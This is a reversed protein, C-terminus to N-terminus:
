LIYESTDYFRLTTVTRLQLLYYDHPPHKILTYQDEIM